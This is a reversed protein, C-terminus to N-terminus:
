NIKDLILDIDFMPEMDVDEDGRIIRYQVIKSDVEPISQIVKKNQHYEGEVMMRVKTIETVFLKTEFIGAFSNDPSDELSASSRVAFFMDQSLKLDPVHISHIFTEAKGLIINANKQSLATQLEAYKKKDGWNVIEDHKVVIFEPVRFGLAKLFNLSGAKGKFMPRTIHENPLGHRLLQTWPCVPNM